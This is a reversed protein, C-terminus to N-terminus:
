KGRGKKLLETKAYPPHYKGWDYTLNPLSSYASFFPPFVAKKEWQRKGTEKTRKKKKKRRGLKKCKIIAEGEM